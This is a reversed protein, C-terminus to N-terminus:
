HKPGQEWTPTLPSAGSKLEAQGLEPQKAMQSIFLGILYTEIKREGGKEREAETM